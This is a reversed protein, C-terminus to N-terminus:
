DDKLTLKPKTDTTLISRAAQKWNNSKLRKSAKIFAGIYEDTKLYEGIVGTSFPLVSEPNIGMEKGVSKCCSLVDKAGKKGTGANATELM